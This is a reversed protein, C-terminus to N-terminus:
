GADIRARILRGFCQQIHIVGIVCCFQLDAPIKTTSLVLVNALLCQAFKSRQIRTEHLIGLVSVREDRARFNQSVQTLEREGQCVRIGRQRDIIFRCGCM